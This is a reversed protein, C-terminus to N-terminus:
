EVACNTEMEKIENCNRDFQIKLDQSVYNMILLMSFELIKKMNKMQFYYKYQGLPM